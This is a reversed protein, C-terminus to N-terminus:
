LMKSQLLLKLLFHAVYEHYLCKAINKITEQSTNNWNNKHLNKWKRPRQSPDLIVEQDHIIDENNLFIQSLAEVITDHQNDELRGM